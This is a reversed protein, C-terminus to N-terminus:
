AGALFSHLEGDMSFMLLNATIFSRLYQPERQLRQILHLSRVHKQIRQPANVRAHLHGAALDDRAHQIARRLASKEADLVSKQAQAQGAADLADFYYLGQDAWWAHTGRAPNISDHPM